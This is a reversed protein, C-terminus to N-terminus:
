NPWGNPDKRRPAAGFQGDEYRRTDRAITGSSLYKSARRTAARPPLPLLPAPNTNTTTTRGYGTPPNQPHRIAPKPIRNRSSTIQRRPDPLNGSAIIQPARQHRRPTASCRPTTDGTAPRRVLNEHRAVPRNCKVVGSVFLDNARRVSRWKNGQLVQEMNEKM